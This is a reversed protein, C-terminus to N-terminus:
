SSPRRDSRPPRESCSALLRPQAPARPEGTNRSAGRRSTRSRSFTRRGASLDFVRVSSRGDVVLLLQDGSARPLRDREHRSRTGVLPSQAALRRSLVVAPIAGIRSTRRSVTVRIAPPDDILASAALLITSMSRAEGLLRLNADPVVRFMPRGAQRALPDAPCALSSASRGGIGFGAHRPRGGHADPTVAPASRQWRLMPQEGSDPPTTLSTM